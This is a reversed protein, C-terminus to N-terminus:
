SGSISRGPSLRGEDLLHDRYADLHQTRIAEIKRDAGLDPILNAEITLAYDRVTSLKRKRDHETWRLWERCADEWTAGTAQQEVRVGRLELRAQEARSM